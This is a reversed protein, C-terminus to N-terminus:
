LVTLFKLRRLKPNRWPLISNGPDKELVHENRIHFPHMYDDVRVPRRTTLDIILWITAAEMILAGSEDIFRMDRAAKLGRAESPWTEGRITEGMVPRRYIKVEMRSLVWTKGATLLKTIGAGRLNAHTGAIDELINLLAPITTKGDSGTNYSRIRYEDTFKEKTSM